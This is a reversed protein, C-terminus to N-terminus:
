SIMQQIENFTVAQATKECSTLSNLSGLYYFTGDYVYANIVLSLSKTDVIDGDTKDKFGSLKFDFGTYKSDVNVLVAKELSAKVGNDYSLNLEQGDDVVAAVVGYILDDNYSNYENLAENNVFYGMCIATNSENISYGKFKFIPQQETEICYSCEERQCDVTKLGPLLYGNAYKVATVTDHELGKELEADCIMCLTSATCKGDVIANYTTIPKLHSANTDEKLTAIEDTYVLNYAKTTGDGQCVNFYGFKNKAYRTFTDSANSTKKVSEIYYNLADMSEFYYDIVDAGYGNQNELGDVGDYANVYGKFYFHYDNNAPYWYHANQTWVYNSLTVAQEKTEGGYIIFYTDLSYRNTGSGRLFNINVLHLQDANIIITEALMAQEFAGTGIEVNRLDIKDIYLQKNFYHGSQFAHMNYAMCYKDFKKINEFPFELAYGELFDLHYFCGESLTTIKETKWIFEEINGMQTDTVTDIADNATFGANRFCFKGITEVGNGVYVRKIARCDDFASQPIELVTDPIYVSVVSRNNVNPSGVASFGIVTYPVGNYEVTSPLVFDRGNEADKSYAWSTVKATRAETDLAFTFGKSVAPIEVDIGEIVCEGLIIEDVGDVVTITEASVTFAFIVIAFLAVTLILLIKRLKNV